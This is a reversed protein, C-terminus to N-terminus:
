QQNLLIAKVAGRHKRFMTKFESLDVDLADPGIGRRQLFEDV